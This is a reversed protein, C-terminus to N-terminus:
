AADGKRKVGAGLRMRSAHIRTSRRKAERLHSPVREMPTKRGREPSEYMTRVAGVLDRVLPGALPRAIEPLFAAAAQAIVQEAAHELNAVQEAEPVDPDDLVGNVASLLEDPNSAPREKGNADVVFMRGIEDRRVMLIAVKPGNM